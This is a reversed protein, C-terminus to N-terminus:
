TMATTGFHIDQTMMDETTPPTFPSVLVMCGQVVDDVPGQGRGMHGKSKFRRAQIFLDSPFLGSPTVVTGQFHPFRRTHSAVYKDQCKQEMGCRDPSWPLQPPLLGRLPSSISWTCCASGNQSTKPAMVLCEHAM